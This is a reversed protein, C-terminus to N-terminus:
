DESHEPADEAIITREVPRTGADGLDRINLIKDGNSVWVIRDSLQVTRLAAANPVTVKYMARGQLQQAQVLERGNLPVIHARIIVAYRDQWATDAGGGGDPTRGEYQFKIIQDRPGAPM